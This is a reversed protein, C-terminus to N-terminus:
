IFQLKYIKLIKEAIEESTIENKIEIRYDCNDYFEKRAEFRAKIGEIGDSQMLPRTARAKEIRRKIIEFDADLLFIIGNKRLNDINEPNLVFGGGTSIIKGNEVALKKSLENELNRFYEEGDEKFIDNITKKAEKEILVDTDIYEMGTMQSLIQSVTSKGSAM